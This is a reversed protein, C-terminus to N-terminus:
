TLRSVEDEDDHNSPWLCDGLRTNALLKHQVSDMRVVCIFLLLAAIFFAFAFSCSLVFLYILEITDCLRVYDGDYWTVALSVSTTSSNAQHPRNNSPYEPRSAVTNAPPVPSSMVKDFSSNIDVEEERNNNVDANRSQDFNDFNRNYTWGITGSDPMTDQSGTPQSPIADPLPPRAESMRVRTDWPQEPYMPLSPPSQSSTPPPPPPTVIAPPMENVNSEFRTTNHAIQPASPSDPSPRVFVTELTDGAASNTASTAASSPPRTTTTSAATRSRPRSLFAFTRM